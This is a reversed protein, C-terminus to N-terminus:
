ALAECGEFEPPRFWDAISGSVGALPRGLSRFPGLRVSAVLTDLPDDRLETGM